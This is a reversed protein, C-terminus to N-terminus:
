HRSALLTSDDRQDNITSALQDPQKSKKTRKRELERVGKGNRDQSRKMSCLHRGNFGPPGM